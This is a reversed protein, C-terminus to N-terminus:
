FKLGGNRAGEALEKVRGHFKNGNRDFVCTAIKKAQAAKALAEGVARAKVKKDGKIKLKLDSASVLTIGKVDDILQAYVNKLSRFVSLRPKKASGSIKARVRRKRRFRQTTKINTM